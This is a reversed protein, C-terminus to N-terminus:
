KWVETKYEEKDCLKCKRHGVVGDLNPLWHKDVEWCHGIVACIEGSKALKRIDDPTITVKRCSNTETTIDGNLPFAIMENTKDQRAFVGGGFEYVGDVPATWTDNTKGWEMGALMVIALILINKTMNM